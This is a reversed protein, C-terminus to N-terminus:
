RVFLRASATARAPEAHGETLPRVAVSYRGSALELAEQRQEGTGLTVARVTRGRAFVVEVMYSARNVLALSVAGHDSRVRRPTVTVRKETVTVAVSGPVITPTAAPAASVARPAPTQAAPRSPHDPPDGFSLTRAFAVLLGLALVVVAM